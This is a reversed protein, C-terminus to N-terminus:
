MGSTMCASQPARVHQFHLRRVHQEWDSSDLRQGPTIRPKLRDGQFEGICITDDTMEDELHILRLFPTRVLVASSEVVPFAQWSIGLTANAGDHPFLPISQNQFEAIRGCRTKVCLRRVRLESSEALFEYDLAQSGYLEMEPVDGSPLSSLIRDIALNVEDQTIPGDLGVYVHHTSM